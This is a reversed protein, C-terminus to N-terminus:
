IQKTGVGHRYAYVLLEFRDSVDLKAFISALHHRVTRETIFLRGAIQKNQLGEKLLDIVELERRTLTNLPLKQNSIFEEQFASIEPRAILNIQYARVLLESRNSVQLKDFISRLHYRVTADSIYLRSSINKNKFGQGILNIVEIERQSLKPIEPASSSDYHPQMTSARSKLSRMLRDYGSAEFLDVWQWRSLRLPVDYIELRVPIIFIAGEPQEDAVDLAFKIEKQVYGAKNISARSLCVIVIDSNRVAKTIVQEWEQGPLLDEEDLWAVIGDHLLRRYLNRIVPKDDSSHCLFVRLARSPAHSQLSSM